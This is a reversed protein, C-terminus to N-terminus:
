KPFFVPPARAGGAGGRAVASCYFSDFQLFFVEINTNGRFLKSRNRLSYNVNITETRLEFPIENM